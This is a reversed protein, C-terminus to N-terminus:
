LTSNMDLKEKGGVAMNNRCEYKMYLVIVGNDLNMSAKTMTPMIGLQISVSCSFSELIESKFIRYRTMNFM